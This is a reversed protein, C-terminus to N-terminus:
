ESDCGSGTIQLGSKRGAPRLPCPVGSRIQWNCALGAPVDPRQQAVDAANRILHALCKQQAVGELEVADYSRGRDCVLVGAFDASILELVEQNGHRPRVQYVSLSANVFAMLFATQGGVRWGTDDTHVM